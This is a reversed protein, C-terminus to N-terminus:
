PLRMRTDGHVALSDLSHISGTAHESIRRIKQARRCYKRQEAKKNQRRHNFGNGDLLGALRQMPWHCDFLNTDIRKGHREIDITKGDAFAFAILDKGTEIVQM